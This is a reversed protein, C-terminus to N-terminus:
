KLPNLPMLVSCLQGSYGQQTHSCPCPLVCASRLVYTAFSPLTGIEVLLHSSTMDVSQRECLAQLNLHRGPLLKKERIFTSTLMIFSERERKSRTNQDFRAALFTNERKDKKQAIALNWAAKLDSSHYNTEQWSRNSSLSSPNFLKILFSAKDTINSTVHVM